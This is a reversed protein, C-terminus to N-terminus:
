LFHLDHQGIFVFDDTQQFLLDSLQALRRIFSCPLLIAFISCPIEFASTGIHTFSGTKERHFKGAGSRQTSFCWKDEM